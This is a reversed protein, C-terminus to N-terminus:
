TCLTLLFPTSAHNFNPCDIMKRVFHRVDLLRLAEISLHPAARDMSLMARVVFPMVAVSEKQERARLVLDPAARVGAEHLQALLSMGSETAEGEPREFYRALLKLRVPRLEMAM